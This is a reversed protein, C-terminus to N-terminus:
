FGLIPAAVAGFILVLIIWQDGVGLGIAADNTKRPLAETVTTGGSGGSSGGNGATTPTPAPAATSDSGSATQTQAASGMQATVTNTGSVCWQYGLSDLYCETGTPCM